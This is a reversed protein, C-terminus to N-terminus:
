NGNEKEKKLEFYEKVMMGVIEGNKV